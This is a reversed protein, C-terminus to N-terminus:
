YPSLPSFRHPKFQPSRQSGSSSVSSKSAKTLVPSVLHRFAARQHSTQSSREFVLHNSSFSVPSQRSSEVCDLDTYKNRNTHSWLSRIEIGTTKLGLPQQDGKPTLKAGSWSTGILWKQDLGVNRGPAALSDCGVPAAPWVIRVIRICNWCHGHVSHSYTAREAWCRRDFCPCAANM